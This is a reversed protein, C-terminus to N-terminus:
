RPRAAPRPCPSRAGPAAGTPRSPPSRCRGPCGPRCASPPSAADMSPCASSCRARPGPPCRCRGRCGDRATGTSGSPRTPASRAWPPSVPGGLRWRWRRPRPAAPRLDRGGDRRYGPPSTRRGGCRPWRSATSRGARRGGRLRGTGRRRRDPHPGTRGGPRRGRGPGLDPWGPLHALIPQQGALATASDLTGSAGMQAAPGGEGGVALWGVGGHVVSTLGPGHGRWSPPARGGGTVM